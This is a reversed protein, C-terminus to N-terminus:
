TIQKTSFCIVLTLLHNGRSTPATEEESESAEAPSQPIDDPSKQPSTLGVDVDPEEGM